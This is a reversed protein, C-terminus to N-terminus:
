PTRRVQRLREELRAPDRMGEPLLLQEVVDTLEAIRRALQRDEVVEEELETVRRRLATVKRRLDEVEAALHRAGGPAVKRRARQAVRSVQGAVRQQLGQSM